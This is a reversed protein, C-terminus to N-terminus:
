NKVFVCFPRWLNLKADIKKSIFGFFNDNKHVMPPTCFSPGTVNFIPLNFGNILKQCKARQQIPLELNNIKLSLPM